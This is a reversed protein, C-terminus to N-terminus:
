STNSSDTFATRTENDSEAAAPLALMNSGCDTLSSKESWSATSSTALSSGGCVRLSCRYHYECLTTCPARVRAARKGCVACAAQPQRLAHMKCFLRGGLVAVGSRTCTDAECRAARRMYHRKCMGMRVVALRCQVDAVCQRVFGDADVARPDRLASILYSEERHTRMRKRSFYAAGAAEEEEEPAEEM